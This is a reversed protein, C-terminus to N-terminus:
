KLSYQMEALNKKSSKRHLKLQLSIARILLKFNCVDHSLHARYAYMTAFTM